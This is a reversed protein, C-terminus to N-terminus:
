IQWHYPINSITIQCYRLDMMKIMENQLVFVLVHVSHSCLSNCLSFSMSFHLPYYQQLNSKATNKIGKFKKAKSNIKYRKEPSQM